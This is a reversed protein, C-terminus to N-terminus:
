PLDSRNLRFSLISPMFWRERIPTASELYFLGKTMKQLTTKTPYHAKGTTLSVFFLAIKDYWTESAAQALLLTGGPKLAQHFQRLVQQQNKYYPFSHTCVILDFTQDMQRIDHADMQCLSVHPLDKLNKEAQLVMGEAYDIGTIHFTITPFAHFIDHILQGTGCGVDLMHCTQGPIMLQELSKLLQLRTPKLSVRQVWLNEYFGAWFNWQRRTSATNIM